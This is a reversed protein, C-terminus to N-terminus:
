MITDQLFFVEKGGIIGRLPARQARVEFDNKKAQTIVHEEFIMTAIKKTRPIM